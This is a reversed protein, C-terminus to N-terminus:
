TQQPDTILIVNTASNQTLTITGLFPKYGYLRIRLTASTAVGNYSAQTINGSADTTTNTINGGVGLDEDIYVLAGSINAGAQDKVNVDITVGGGTVNIVASSGAARRISPTTGGTVNINFTGSAASVYIAANATTSTIGNAVVGAAYGTGFTNNCNYDGATTLEIAHGATGRIFTCNTVDALDSVTLAGNDATVTSSDFTCLNFTAGGGTVGNCRRWTCSDLTNANTAANYVFTDMDTFVCSAMDVTASDIVELSGRSVTGLATISIATWDIVSGTNLIEIRNFDANVKRVDEVAINRNADTMALSASHGLRMIGKWLYSGGNDQFLGWRNAVSNATAEMTAFTETGVVQLQGLGYRVADVGIPSGKAIASIIKYGMGVHTFSTTSPSGVTTDSAFTDRAVFCQWGGFPYRGYDNGGVYWGKRDATGSGVLIVCGGNAITDVAAPATFMGWVFLHGDTIYNTAGASPNLAMSATSATRCEQSAHSSGQIPYDSDNVGKSGATYGSFELTYSSPNVGDFDLITTLDTTVAM